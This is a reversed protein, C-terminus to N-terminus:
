IRQDYVLEDSVTDPAITLIGLVTATAEFKNDNNNLNTLYGNKSAILEDGIAYSVEATGDGLDFTEYLQNGYSGQASVYPGRNSAIGPQNTFPNSVATNIFIGLAKYGATQVIASKAGGHFSVGEDKRTFAVSGSM